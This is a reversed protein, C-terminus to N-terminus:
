KWATRWDKWDKSVTQGMLTAAEHLWHAGRHNLDKKIAPIESPTGWHVNATEYGMAHLLKLEDRKRALQTMEIRSCYPALRRVIWGDRVRVMPDPARVALDLIKQYRIEKTAGKTGAWLCASPALAKTERALRAGHWDAIAVFRQRGLSGLGAIRTCLMYPVKADPLMKELAKRARKPVEKRWRYLSEMKTWFTVPDREEGTAAMRLWHHNEALVFPRGGNRVGERYGELIAECVSSLPLSLHNENRAILASTALRILDCTYPLPSTEDFDNIGWVLRGELDRWTGFNEVHLDGVALVTPAKVTAPCVEPWSQMWRYFTARLFPFASEAMRDHKLRLDHPLVTILRGLWKEYRATSKEIKM